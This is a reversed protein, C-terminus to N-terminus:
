NRRWCASIQRHCSVLCGTYNSKIGISIPDAVLLAGIPAYRNVVFCPCPSGASSEVDVNNMNLLARKTLVFGQQPAIKQLDLELFPEEMSLVLAAYRINHVETHKRLGKDCM